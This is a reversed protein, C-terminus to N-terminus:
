GGEGYGDIQRPAGDDDDDDGTIILCLTVHDFNRGVKRRGDVDTLKNWRERMM